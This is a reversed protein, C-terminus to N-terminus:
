AADYNLIAAHPDRVDRASSAAGHAGDAVQVFGPGHRLGCASRAVVAVVGDTVKRRYKAGAREDVSSDGGGM